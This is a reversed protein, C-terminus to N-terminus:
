PKNVKLFKYIKEVDNYIFNIYYLGAKLKNTKINVLSNERQLNVKQKSLVVGNINKIEILVSTNGITKKIDIWLNDFVPNPYIRIRDINPKVEVTVIDFFEVKGDFDTQKLRYYSVGEYPNEDVGVYNNIENSNGAGSLNFVIEFEVGDSSKEITFFANNIESITSSILNVTNHKVQAEFNLLKVHLIATFGAIEFRDDRDNVNATFTYPGNNLLHYVGLKYDHLMVSYDNPFNNFETMEISYLGNTGMTTFLPTVMTLQNAALSNIVLHYNDDSVSAFEIGTPNGSPFLIADYNLDYNSTAGIKYRVILETSYSLGSLSLRFLPDSSFIALSTNILKGSDCFHTSVEINKFDNFKIENNNHQKTQSNITKIFFPQCNISNTLSTSVIIVLCINKILFMRKLKKCHSNEEGEKIRYM